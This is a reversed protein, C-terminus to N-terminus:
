HMYKRKKTKHLSKKYLAKKRYKTKAGGRKDNANKRREKSLLKNAHTERICPVPRLIKKDVIYEMTGTYGNGKGLQNCKMAKIFDHSSDKFINTLFKLGIADLNVYSSANQILYVKNSLNRNAIEKVIDRTSFQVCHSLAEGCVLITSNNETLSTFLADNFTTKLDYKNTDTESIDNINTKGLNNEKVSFELSPVIYKDYAISDGILPNYVYNKVITQIDDPLSQLVDEYPIEAKMISYMEALQNQGKIHYEVKDAYKDLVKQLDPNIKWGNTGQICHVAWTCPLNRGDKAGESIVKNLYTIAYKNMAARDEPKVNAVYIKNNSGKIKGNIVSFTTGPPAIGGDSGDDNLERWFRHGIHFITHTDLSVFIKSIRSNYINIIESIRPIDKKSNVVPLRGISNGEYPLDIFDNQPDIILLNIPEHLTFPNITTM